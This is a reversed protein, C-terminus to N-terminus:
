LARQEIISRLQAASNEIEEVRQPLALLKEIEPTSPVPVSLAEAVTEGFKAAKATEMVLVLEGPEALRQAVTWGDATHPDILRGHKAKVEAIAALRDQHTSCSSAFGFETRMRELQASLDVQGSAELTAWAAKFDEPGLLTWLFRELNSAKSIDMSPSSTAYTQASPRPRYIGTSFFEDLVNNENTALILRRIPVGMERALHGAYINGFNGSPVSFSLRPSTHEAQRQAASLSDTVRLWAWVYYVCQAAIRGFNISNVAGLSHQKKFSADANLEKVLNQCDDFVGRVAINHITPETLSYMQARQVDSMRGAPSLMFVSVGPSARFAHEAASGTDGSTAGLINLVGGRLSLVHPVAQGLFQMALDKFAMTPGESLGVLGIGEGLLEVPVVPAPFREVSYARATMKALEAAPIDTAFLGIVKAALEPYSLQRWDELDTPTIRPLTEPVVLGGDPALGDLLVETFGAPSMGGRTSIFQM